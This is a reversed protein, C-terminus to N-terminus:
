VAEEAIWDFADDLKRFNNITVPRDSSWAEYIRTMGYPLDESAVLALKYKVGAQDITMRAYEAVHMLDKSSVDVTVHDEFHWISNMGAHYKRNLLTSEISKVIIPLSVYDSVHYIVLNNEELIETNVAM